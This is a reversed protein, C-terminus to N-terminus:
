DAALRPVEVALGCAIELKGTPTAITWLEPLFGGRLVEVVCLQSGDARDLFCGAELDGIESGGALKQSPSAYFFGSEGRALWKVRVIDLPKDEPDRRSM